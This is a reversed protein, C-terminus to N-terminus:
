IENVTDILRDGASKYECIGFEGENYASSHCPNIENCAFCIQKFQKTNRTSSHTRTTTTRPSLLCADSPLSTSAAAAEAGPKEAKNDKKLKNVLSHRGLVPSCNRSQHQKCFNTKSDGILEHVQMYEYCQLNIPLVVSSWTKGLNTLTKWGDDMLSSANNVRIDKNSILSKGVSQNVSERNKPEEM